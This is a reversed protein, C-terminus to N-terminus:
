RGGVREGPGERLPLPMRAMTGSSPCAGRRSSPTHALDPSAHEARRPLASRRPRARSVAGRPRGHVGARGAPMFGAARPAQARAEWSHRPKVGGPAQLAGSRRPGQMASVCSWHDATARREAPAATHAGGLSYPPPRGGRSSPGGYWSTLTRRDMATGHSPRSGTGYPPERVLLPQRRASRGPLCGAGACEPRGLEGRMVTFRVYLYISRTAPLTLM